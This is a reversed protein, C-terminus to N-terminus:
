TAAPLAQAFISVAASGFEVSKSGYSFGSADRQDVTSQFVESSDRQGLTSYHVESYALWYPSHPASGPAHPSQYYCDSPQPIKLKRAWSESVERISLPPQRFPKRQRVHASSSFSRRFGLRRFVSFLSCPCSNRDSERGSVLELKEWQM